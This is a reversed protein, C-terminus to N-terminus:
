LHFGTLPWRNSRRLVSYAGKMQDVKDVGGRYKYCTIMALKQKEGTDEDISDTHPFTFPSYRVVKNPKPVCSLLTTVTM